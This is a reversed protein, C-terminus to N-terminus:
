KIFYLKYKRLYGKLGFAEWIFIFIFCYIFAGFLRWGYLM